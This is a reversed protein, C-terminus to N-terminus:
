RGSKERKEAKAEAERIKKRTWKQRFLRVDNDDIM